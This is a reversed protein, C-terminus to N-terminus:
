STQDVIEGIRKIIYSKKRVEKLIESRLDKLHDDDVEKAYFCIKNRGTKEGWEQLAKSNEKEQESTYFDIIEGDEYGGCDYATIQFINM